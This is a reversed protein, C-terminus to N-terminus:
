HQNDSDWTAAEVRRGRGPSPPNDRFYMVEPMM